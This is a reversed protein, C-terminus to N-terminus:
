IGLGEFTAPLRRAQGLKEIFAEAAEPLHCTHDKLTGQLMAHRLIIVKDEADLAAELPPHLMAHRLMIVKDEADSAAEQQIHHCHHHHNTDEGEMQAIRRMGQACMM